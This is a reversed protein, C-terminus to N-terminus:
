GEKFLDRMVALFVIQRQYSPPWSLSQPQHLSRQPRDHCIVGRASVSAIASGSGAAALRAKLGHHRHLLDVDSRDLLRAPASVGRKM